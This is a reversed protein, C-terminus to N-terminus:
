KVFFIINKRQEQLLAISEKASDPIILLIKDSAFTYLQILHNYCDSFESYRNSETSNTNNLEPQYKWISKTYQLFQDRSVSDISQGKERKLIQKSFIMIHKYQSQLNSVKQNFNTITIEKPTDNRWILEGRM